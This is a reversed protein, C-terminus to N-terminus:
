PTGAQLFGADAVFPLGLTSTVVQGKRLVQGEGRAKRALDDRGFAMGAGQRRDGFIGFCQNSLSATRIDLRRLPAPASVRLLLRAVQWHIPV